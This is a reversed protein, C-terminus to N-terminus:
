MYSGLIVSSTISFAFQGIKVAHNIGSHLSLGSAQGVTVFRSYIKKGM